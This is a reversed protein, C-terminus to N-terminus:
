SGLQLFFMGKFGAQEMKFCLVVDQIQSKLMFTYKLSLHSVYHTVLNKILQQCISFFCSM